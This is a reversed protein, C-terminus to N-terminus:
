GVGPGCFRAGMRRSMRRLGVEQAGGAPYQWGDARVAGAEEGRDLDKPSDEM